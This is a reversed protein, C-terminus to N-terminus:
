HETPAFAGTMVATTILVAAIVLWETLVSRRFAFLAPQHGARIMPGFRWKNLTALGMLAAFGAAKASLLLGYPALLSALNPLLALSMALGAAFIVPVLWAALTSFREVVVANTPTPELNAALAFPGLAGFWFAVVILHVILLPALLWRQDDDATHGMLAFSAAILTGGIVAAAQGARTKSAIGLAIMALGLVRVATAAGADSALVLAQLSPDFISDLTGTLRAPAALQQALTLALGVVASWLALSEIPRRARPLEDGYLWLFLPVGAAQLVAVFSLARLAIAVFDAANVSM